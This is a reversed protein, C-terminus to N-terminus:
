IGWFADITSEIKTAVEERVISPLNVFFNMGLEDELEKITCYENDTLQAYNKHDLLVGLSVYGGTSAAVTGGKRYGLLAKFYRDPVSIAKGDRDKATRNSYTCGTVVYLTDLRNSWSRVQSELNQWIGENMSGNQATMNTFYFTQVNAEFCCLRDASPLQHGRQYGSIGSTMNPQNSSAYYPDWGWRNTREISKNTYTKCLPYAVWQAIFGATDYLYSYNRYSKGNMTFHHNKYDSKRTDPIQPLELWNPVPCTKGVLNGDEPLVEYEAKESQYFSLSCEGMADTLVVELLRAEGTNNEEWSLIINSKDGSGSALSLSAWDVEDNQRSQGDDNQGDQSLNQVEDFQELKSRLSLTWDGSSKVIVFTSGADKNSSDKKLSIESKKTQASPNKECSAVFLVACSVVFFLLVVSMFAM